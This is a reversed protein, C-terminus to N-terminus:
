RRQWHHTLRIRTPRSTATALLLAHGDPLSRIEDVPLVPRWTTSASTSHQRHGRQWGAQEVPTEGALRSVDGLLQADDLGAGVLKVTAAGWLARM